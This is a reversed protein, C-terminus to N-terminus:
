MVVEHKVFLYTDVSILNHYWGVPMAQTWAAGAGPGPNHHDFVLHQSHQEQHYVPGVEGGGARCCEVSHLM